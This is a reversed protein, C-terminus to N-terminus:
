HKSQTPYFAGLVDGSHSGVGTKGTSTKLTKSFDFLFSNSPKTQFDSSSSHTNTNTNVNDFIQFQGKGSWIGDDGDDDAAANLNLSGLYDTVGMTGKLLSAVGSEVPGDDDGEDDDDDKEGYHGNRYGQTLAKIKMYNKFFADLDKFKEDVEKDVDEEFYHSYKKDFVDDYGDDDIIDHYFDEFDDDFLDDFIDDVYELIGDLKDDYIKVYNETMDDDDGDDFLDVFLHEYQYKKYRNLAGKTSVSNFVNKSASWGDKDDDDKENDDDDDAVKTNTASASSFSQPYSGHVAQNLLSSFSNSPFGGFGNDDSDAESEEGYYQYGNFGSSAPVHARTNGDDDAENRDDHEFELGDEGREHVDDGTFLFKILSIPSSGLLSQAFAFKHPAHGSEDADDGEDNM